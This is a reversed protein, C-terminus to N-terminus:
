TEETLGQSRAGVSPTRPWRPCCRLYRCSSPSGLFGHPTRVRTLATAIPRRCSRGRRNACQHRAGHVSPGTVQRPLFQSAQTAATHPFKSHWSLIRSRRRGNSRTSCSHRHEIDLHNRNPESANRKDGTPRSHLTARLPFSRGRPNALSRKHGTVFAVRRTCNHSGSAALTPSWSPNAVHM